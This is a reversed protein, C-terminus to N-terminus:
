PSWTAECHVFVAQPRKQVSSRERQRRAGLGVPERGGGQQVPTAVVPRQGAHFGNRGTVRRRLRRVGTVVFATDSVAVCLRSKGLRRAGTRMGLRRAGVGTPM